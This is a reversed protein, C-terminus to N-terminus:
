NTGWDPLLADLMRGAVENWTFEPARRVAIEGLRRALDPDSLEIMATTLAQADSPDVVRGGDGVADPAGGVTTGISPVGAAAADLYGIGFPEFVSPMVMCTAKALLERYERRGQESGLPLRGHGTVGEAEIPPHAGVMDLTADPYAKRVEAFSSVVDAGRKRQWDSGVWLFRPTSWDRQSASLDANIGFWVVRVKAPDIGYDQEVSDGAWRSAVCCASAREFNRQQRNRWRRAAAESLEEYVPERQRLAQAVTLDEFTAVPCSASLSYGSGIAVAGDVRGARKLRRSAAASCLWAFAPNAAQQAWSMGVMDVVRGMGRVEANIPVVECGQQEFGGILGTPVGSWTGGKQPDGEFVLAIRPGRRGEPAVGGVSSM